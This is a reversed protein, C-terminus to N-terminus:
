EYNQLCICFYFCGLTELLESLQLTDKHFNHFYFFLDRHFKLRRPFTKKINSCKPEGWKPRKRLGVLLCSRSTVFYLCIQFFEKELPFSCLIISFEVHFILVRALKCTEPYIYHCYKRLFFKKEKRLVCNQFSAM